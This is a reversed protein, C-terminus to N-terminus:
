LVNEVLTLLVKALDPESSQLEAKLVEKLAIRKAEQTSCRRDTRISILHKPNIEFAERLKDCGPM